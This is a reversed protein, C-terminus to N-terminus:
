RPSPPTEPQNFGAKLPDVLDKVEKLGLGTNARAAKIAEIMQGKMLLDDVDRRGQPGPRAANKRAMDADPPGQRRNRGMKGMVLGTARAIVIALIIKPDSFDPM